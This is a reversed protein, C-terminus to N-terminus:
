VSLCVCVCVCRSRYGVEAEIYAAIHYLVIGFRKTMGRSYHRTILSPRTEIPWNFWCVVAQCNTRENSTVYKSPKTDVYLLPVLSLSLPLLPFLSLITQRRQFANGERSLSISEFVDSERNLKILYKTARTRSARSVHKDRSVEHEKRDQKTRRSEDTFICNARSGELRQCRTSRLYKRKVIKRNIEKGRVLSITHSVITKDKNNM